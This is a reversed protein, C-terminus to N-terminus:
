VQCMTGEECWVLKYVWFKSGQTRRIPNQKDTPGSRQYVRLSEDGAAANQQNMKVFTQDGKKNNTRLRSYKCRDVNVRPHCLRACPYCLAPASRQRLRHRIRSRCPATRGHPPERGGTPSANVLRVACERTGGVRARAHQVSLLLVNHGGRFRAHQPAATDCTAAYVRIGLGFPM